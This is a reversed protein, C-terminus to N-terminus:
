KWTLSAIRSGFGTCFRCRHTCCRSSSLGTAQAHCWIPFRRHRLILLKAVSSRRPSGLSSRRRSIRTTTLLNRRCSSKHSPNTTWAATFTAKSQRPSPASSGPRRRRSSAAARCATASRTCAAASARTISGATLTARYNQQSPASTGPSRRRSNTGARSATEVCGDSGLRRESPAPRVRHPPASSIKSSRFPAPTSGARSMSRQSRSPEPSTAGRRGQREPVARRPRGCSVAFPPRPPVRPALRRGVPPGKGLAVDLQFFGPRM